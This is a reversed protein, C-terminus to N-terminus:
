WLIKLELSKQLRAKGEPTYLDIEDGQLVFRRINGFPVVRISDNSFNLLRLTSDSLSQLLFNGSSSDKFDVHAYNALRCGDCSSLLLLLSFSYAIRKM